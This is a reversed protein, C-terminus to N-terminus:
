SLRPLTPFGNSVKMTVNPIGRKITGIGKKIREAAGSGHVASKSRALTVKEMGGETRSLLVELKKMETKYDREKM